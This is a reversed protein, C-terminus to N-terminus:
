DSGILDERLRRLFTIAMSEEGQDILHIIASIQTLVPRYLCELIAAEAMRVQRSPDDPNAWFNLKIELLMLYKSERNDNFPGYVKESVCGIEVPGEAMRQEKTKVLRMRDLITM